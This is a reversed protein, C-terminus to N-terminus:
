PKKTDNGKEPANRTELVDCVLTGELL